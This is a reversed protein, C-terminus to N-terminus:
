RPPAGATGFLGSWWGEERDEALLDLGAADAAAMVGGAETDLIGGLIVRGGPALVRAVGALLPTLIGSLVNAVVLDSAAPGLSALFADDVVGHVLEVRESVENRELNDRASAIAGGDSEIALVREAGLRVAGISLIGSGAGVDLVREGGEVAAELLRLAGRTTPHEGTGFASGPDVTIVLTDADVVPNWPQTVTIRRGVQRPELGDKWRASWDEDDQWRWELAPVRGLVAGLRRTADALFDEFAAPAPVYTTLRDGEDEVATGGLALLGETLEIHLEASPIPVTLVLWRDPTM